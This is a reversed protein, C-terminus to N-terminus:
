KEVDDIGYTETPADTHTFKRSVRIYLHSLNTLTGAFSDALPMTYYPKDVARMDFPPTSLLVSVQQALSTVAIEATFIPGKRGGTGPYNTTRLEVTLLGPLYEGSFSFTLEPKGAAVADGTFRGGSSNTTATFALDYPVPAGGMGPGAPFQVTLKQSVM